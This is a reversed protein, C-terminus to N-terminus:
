LNDMNFSISLTPGADGLDVGPIKGGAAMIFAGELGCDVIKAM